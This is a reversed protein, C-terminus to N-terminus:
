YSFAFHLHREILSSLGAWAVRARKILGFAKPELTNHRPSRVHAETSEITGPLPLLDRVLQKQSRYSAIDGNEATFV